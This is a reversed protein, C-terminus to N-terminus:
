AANRGRGPSSGPIMAVSPWSEASAGVAAGVRGGLGGERWFPMMAAQGRAASSSPSPRSRRQDAVTQRARVNGGGPAGARVGRGARWAQAGAEGLYVSLQRHRPDVRRRGGGSARPAPGPTSAITGRDWSVRRRLDRFPRTRSGGSIEQPSERCAAADLGRYQYAGRILEFLGTAYWANRMAVCAVVEAGPPRSLRRSGCAEVEGSMARAVRRDLQDRDDKAILRGKSVRGVLHGARGVRQLGERSPEPRSARASLEVAGMDSGMELSHPRWWPKLEGQKLLEERRGREELNLSGYARAGGAATGPRIRADV